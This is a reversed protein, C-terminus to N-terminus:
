AALPPSYIGLSILPNRGEKLAQLVDAIILLNREQNQTIESYIHSISISSTSEFSPDLTFLTNRLMIKHSFPRLQAQKKADVKYRIAGCQMFIIPQHGDKRTATATLGLVYKAKCAKIVAEFSVASLHHCEDIIIQGYDAVRDDISKNKVLSQMLAVDVIGTSKSKGGGIMGIDASSIDLFIKLREIWQDLLQRRHVIVLTNTKRKAIMYAGVVTKGFATTAALVGTDHQLLKQAAKGQEETLTGLFNVLVLNGLNRKDELVGEIDLAKLLEIVEELCGRPLGLHHPFDEACAIIRPKGFTPLRM